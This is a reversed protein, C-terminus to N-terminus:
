FYAIFTKKRLSEIWEKQLRDQEAARLTKEIDDRVDALPKVHAQHLDVVNILYCADPLDIVGSTEGPKLAFAAATLEPRLTTRDVWGRDGGIKKQDDQSYIMAMESFTAGKHIESLIENALALTNTGSDGNKNLTIMRLKVQDPLKFDAQHAQYYTEVKFPSIIIEKSVNENRMAAEIYQERVQKRFQEVTMGQAQLTKIMTVRDGFREKIRDQVVGDIVSDPLKYGDTEFSHLILQREVLQELSDNLAAELAKQYADPQGRYQQRLTDVVPATFDYVQAYTIVTDNVIAQVGDALVPDAHLPSVLGGLVALVPILRAINM